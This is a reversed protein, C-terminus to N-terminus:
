FFIKHIENIVGYKAKIVTKHSKGRNKAAAITSIANYAM